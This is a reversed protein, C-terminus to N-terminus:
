TVTSIVINSRGFIIKKLFIKFTDTFQFLAIMLSLLCFHYQPAKNAFSIFIFLSYPIGSIFLIMVLIVTRRVMQFEWQIRVLINVPTARKGIEKM